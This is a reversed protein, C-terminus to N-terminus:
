PACWDQSPGLEEVVDEEAPWAWQRALGNWHAVPPHFIAATKDPIPGSLM